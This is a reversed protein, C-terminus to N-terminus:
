RKIMSPFTALDQQQLESAGSLWGMIRRFKDPDKQPNIIVAENPDFDYDGSGWKPYIKINNTPVGDKIIKRNKWDIEPQTMEIEYKGIKDSAMGKSLQVTAYDRDKPKSLDVTLELMTERTKPENNPMFMNVNTTSVSPLNLTESYDAKNNYAVTLADTLQKKQDETMNFEASGNKLEYELWNVGETSEYGNQLALQLKRKESANKNVAVPKKGAINVFQMYAEAAPLGNNVVTNIWQDRDSIFNKQKAEDIVTKTGGNPMKMETKFTGSAAASATMEKNFDRQKYKDLQALTNLTSLPYKATAKNEGNENAYTAIMPKWEGNPQWEGMPAVAGSETPAFLELVDNLLAKVVPSPNDSGNVVQAAKELSKYSAAYEKVGSLLSQKKLNFLAYNGDRRLDKANINSENKALTALASGFGDVTEYGTQPVESLEENIATNAADIDKEYGEQAKRQEKAKAADLKQQQMDMQQQRIANANAQKKQAMAIKAVNSGIDPVEYRQFGAYTAM